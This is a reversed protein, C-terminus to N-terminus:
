TPPTDIPRPPPDGAHNIDDSALVSGVFDCVAAAVSKVMRASACGCTARLVRELREASFMEDRSNAAETVGDTFVYIRDGPAFSLRGSAYVADPRV